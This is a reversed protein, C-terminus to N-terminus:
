VVITQICTKSKERRKRQRRQIVQIEDLPFPRTFTPQKVILICTAVLSFALLTPTGLRCYLALAAIFHSCSKTLLMEQSTVKMVFLESVISM